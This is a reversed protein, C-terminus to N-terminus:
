LAEEKIVKELAMSTITAQLTTSYTVEQKRFLLSTLNHRDSRSM